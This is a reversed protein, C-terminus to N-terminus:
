HWFLPTAVPPDLPASHRCLFIQWFNPFLPLSDLFFIPFFLSFIMFFLFIPFTKWKAGVSLYPIPNAVSSQWFVLKPVFIHHVVAVKDSWLGLTTKTQEWVLVLYCKCYTTAKWSNVGLQSTFFPMAMCGQYLMLNTWSKAVTYVMSIIITGLM